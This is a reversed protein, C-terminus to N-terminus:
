KKTCFMIGIGGPGINCLNTSSVDQIYISKWNIKRTVEQQILQQLEESCNAVTIFLINDSINKRNRLIKRIYKKAYTTRHGICIGVVKLEDHKIKIIPKIKFFNLITSLTHNVRKNNAVYQTTKLIFSCSIKGRMKALEDLIIEVTANCKAMDAATLVFIGMASSISGSDVVYINQINKSAKLANSYANSIKKSGSIHIVSNDDNETLRLFHRRYEEVSAPESSITPNDAEMYELLTTTNIETSDEFRSNKIKIYFPVIHISYKKLVSEPLDCICDTSIIIKKNM